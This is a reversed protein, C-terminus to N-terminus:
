CLIMAINLYIDIQLASCINRRKTDQLIIKKGNDWYENM